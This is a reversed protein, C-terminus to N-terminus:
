KKDEYVKSVTNGIIKFDEYNPSIIIKNATSILSNDKRVKIHGEAVIPDSSSVYTLKDANLTIGGEIAIFTDEYLTIVKSESNYTGKSSKLSMTVKNDKYFNALVGDLQAIGSNGDWHGTDGYVEWYKTDDKTETLIVGKVVAEQQPQKNDSIQRKFDHTILKATAFAWLLVGTLALAIMLYVRKKKSLQKFDM